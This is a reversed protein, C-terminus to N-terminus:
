RWRGTRVDPNPDEPSVIRSREPPQMTHIPQLTRLFVSPRTSLPSTPAVDIPLPLLTAGLIAGDVKLADKMEAEVDDRIKGAPDSGSAPAPGVHSDLLFYAHALRAVWSYVMEPTSTAWDSVNYKSSLVNRVRTVADNLFPQIRTTSINLLDNYRTQLEVATPYAM